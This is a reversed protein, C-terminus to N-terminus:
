ISFNISSHRRFCPKGQRKFETNNIRDSVSEVIDHDSHVLIEKPAEGVFAAIIPDAQEYSFGLEKEDTQGEWLDASPPRNIIKDPVGLEEAIKYVETKYFNGLVEVDSEEDGGITFYGLWYESRNETGLVLGNNLNAFYRLRMARTRAKINALCIKLDEREPYQEIIAALGVSEAESDVTPSIDIQRFETHSPVKKSILRACEISDWDSRDFLCPGLLGYPMNILSVREGGVAEIAWYAVVASDIGGSLGVIFREQGSEDLYRRLWRKGAHIENKFDQIM